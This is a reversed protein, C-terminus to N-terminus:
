HEQIRFRSFRQLFAHDVFIAVPITFLGAAAAWFNFRDSRAAVILPVAMLALRVGLSGLAIGTARTRNAGVGLQYPLIQAMLVFNLVSFLSGLVLGKAAAGYGAVYALLGTMVSVTFAGRALRRQYGHYGSLDARELPDGKM